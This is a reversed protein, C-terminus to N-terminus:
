STSATPVSRDKIQVLSMTRRNIKSIALTIQHDYDRINNNGKLQSMDHSSGLSYRIPVGVALREELARAIKGNWM